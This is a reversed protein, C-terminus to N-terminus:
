LTARWARVVRKAAELCAQEHVGRRYQPQPHAYDPEGGSVETFQFGAVTKLKRTENKMPIYVTLTEEESTPEYDVGFSEVIRKARLFKAQWRARNETTLASPPNYTRRTIHDLWAGFKAAEYAAEHLIPEADEVRLDITVTKKMDIDGTAGTADAVLLLM